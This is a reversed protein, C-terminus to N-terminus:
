FHYKIGVYEFYQMSVLHEGRELIYLFICNFYIFKSFILTYTFVVTSKFTNKNGIIVIIALM